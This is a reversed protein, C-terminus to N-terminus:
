ISLPISIMPLVEKIWNGVLWLMYSLVLVTYIISLPAYIALIAQDSTKEPSPQRRFLDLYFELSRKRLNNIGTIAVLLYYGDFANLPNLNLVVTVLAASMFLYSNQQLISHPPSALLLWLALAWIVIQVIVGAAVVLVRQKRKILSYQDSTNTYMGPMFCMFLLGIEPVIGGFHKLTFAHGLEHLLIVLMTAFGLKLLNTSALSLDGWVQQHASVVDTAYALWLFFTQSLFFCLFFAFGTTWIWRLKDINEALWEDPNFLPIKFFLIQALSIKKPPPETGELMGTAALKQLLQQFEQITLDYKNAIAPIPKKGLQCIVNKDINNVQLFTPYEPNRLIWYGDPHQIWHVESKLQMFKDFQSFIQDPSPCFGPKYLLRLRTRSM